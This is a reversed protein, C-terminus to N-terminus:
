AKDGKEDEAITCLLTPDSVAPWWNRHFSNGWDQTASSVPFVLDVGEPGCHTSDEMHRLPRWSATAVDMQRPAPTPREGERLEFCNGVSNRYVLRKDGREEHGVACIIVVALQIRLIRGLKPLTAEVPRRNRPEDVTRSIGLRQLIDHLAIPVNQPVEFIDDRFTGAGNLEPPTSAQPSFNSGFPPNGEGYCDDM